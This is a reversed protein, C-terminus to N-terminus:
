RAARIKELAEKFDEPYPATFTVTEGSDPHAFTLSQAHLAPREILDTRPASYLSDGLLPFGLAYAHVRIQHTRGTAPTSELLAYGTFRQLVVFRTETPKGHSNDVMTRHSHGVNVRLKHKATHESWKPVGVCISHYIKQSTHQEFQMNLARHAEPTRAFVMVGSTVKDLRHVVLLEPFKEQLLKVLYPADPEWGDPLVPLSAPKNIILLQEDEYLILKKVPPLNM